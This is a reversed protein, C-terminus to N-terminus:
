QSLRVDNDACWAQAFEILDCMDGVPMSRTQIGLAVVTRGDLSPVIRGQERDTARAWADVLLRKWGETDISQGAWQRSRALEGCIAHLKANQELSRKSVKESIEVRVPKGLQLYECCAKWAAAMGDRANGVDLVFTRSM